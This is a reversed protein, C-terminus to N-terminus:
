RVLTVSCISDILEAGPTLARDRDISDEFIQVAPSTSMWKGLVRSIAGYLQWLIMPLHLIMM